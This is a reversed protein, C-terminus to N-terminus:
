PGSALSVRRFHVGAENFMEQALLHQERYHESDYSDVREAHVVVERIGAQIIARACDVCPVLEVYITCDELPRGNRSAEYIANREAHEIWAYKAPAILREAHKAIGKPLRNWGESRMERDPGVIVCGVQTKPDPSRKGLQHCKEFHYRDVNADVQKFRPRYRRSAEKLLQYEDWTVPAAGPREIVDPLRSYELDAYTLRYIQIRGKSRRSSEEETPLFIAVEKGYENAVMEVAPDFDRDASVLIAAEFRSATDRGMAAPFPGVESVTLADRVIGIAINTDTQKEVRRKQPDKQYYGEVIVVKFNTGWKLADLWLRQRRIEGANYQLDEKQIRSTYYKVAGLSYGNPFAKAALRHALIVFNCWGLRLTEKKNIFGYFNYGDIYVNVVPPSSM